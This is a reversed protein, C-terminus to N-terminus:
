NLTYRLRWWKSGDPNVLMFLGRVDHLKWPKEKLKANRCASDMLEKRKSNEV